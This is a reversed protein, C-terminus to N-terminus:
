RICLYRLLAFIRKLKVFLLCSGLYLKNNNTNQRRSSLSNWMYLLKLQKVAFVINHIGHISWVYWSVAYLKELIGSWLHSLPFFTAVKQELWTSFQTFESVKCKETFIEMVLRCPIITIYSTLILANWGNEASEFSSLIYMGLTFDVYLTLPLCNM